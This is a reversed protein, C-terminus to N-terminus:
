KRIVKKLYDKLESDNLLKDFGSVAPQNIKVSKAICSIFEEFDPNLEAIRDVTKWDISPRERSPLVIDSDIPESINLQMVGIGFAQSLRTLEERFEPDEDIHVGVLYAEHAWSSNSVTQFFYERLTVFNLSIKLEFSYIRAALDGSAQALQVVDPKWEKTTLAFAVVDPHIWQNQKEGKKKSKEHWVTRCHAGFKSNAFSVLLPHLDRESFAAKKIRTVPEAAVQQQLDPVSGVMSRLFFKAPRSSLKTFPSSPKQVDTYLRAGLSQGPTKGTSDLLTALGSAQAEEWIEGASLPKKANEIVRKALELFSIKESM